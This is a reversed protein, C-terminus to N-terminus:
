AAPPRVKMKLVEWDNIEVSGDEGLFYGRFSSWKWLESSAPTGGKERM